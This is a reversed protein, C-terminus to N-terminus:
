LLETTDEPHNQDWWTEKILEPREDSQIERKSGNAVAPQLCTTLWQTNATVGTKRGGAVAPWIYDPGTSSLVIPYSQCSLTRTRSHRYVYLRGTSRAPRKSETRTRTKARKFLTASTQQKCTTSPTNPVSGSFGQVHNTGPRSPLKIKEMLFKSVIFPCLTSLHEWSDEQSTSRPVLYFCKDCSCVRRSWAERWLTM